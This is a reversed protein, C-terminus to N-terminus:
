GDALAARIADGNEEVFRREYEVQIDGEIARLPGNCDWSALAIAREEVALDDVRAQFEPNLTQPGFVTINEDDSGGAIPPAGDEAFADPDRVIAEYRREIDAQASEVDTFRYGAETMCSSWGSTAEIIRPDANFAEEIEEFEDGFQEFVRGFSFLEDYAGGQCGSPQFSQIDDSGFDPLGGSLATQYAEREGDSLAMIYEQNPDVFTDFAEFSEEFPNSAIGFGYAEVFERSEFDTASSIAGLNGFDVVQYEFGQALMCEAIKVEARRSLDSFYQEMADDDTFPIGLLDGIPSDSSGSSTDGSSTTDVQTGADSDTAPAVDASDSSSTGGGCASALLAAVCLLVLASIRSKAFM